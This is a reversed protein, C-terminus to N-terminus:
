DTAQDLVARLDALTWVGETVLNGVGAGQPFSYFKVSRGNVEVEMEGNVFIAIPTHDILGHDEAFAKGADTDFDYTQWTVRDGYEALIAEVEQVTPLIPAHNLHIIEVTVIGNNQSGCAALLLALLGWILWSKRM